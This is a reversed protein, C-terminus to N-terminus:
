ASPEDTQSEADRDRVVSFISSVALHYPSCIEVWRIQKRRPTLRRVRTADAGVVGGLKPGSAASAPWHSLCRSSCSRGARCGESASAAGVRGNGNPLSVVNM